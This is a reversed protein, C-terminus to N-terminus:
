QIRMMGRLIWMERNENHKEMQRNFTCAESGYVLTPKIYTQLVQCLYSSLYVAPLSYKPEDQHHFSDDKYASFMQIYSQHKMEHQISIVNFLVSSLV